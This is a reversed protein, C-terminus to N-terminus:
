LTVLIHEYQRFHGSLRIASLPKPVRVHHRQVLKNQLVAVAAGGAPLRGYSRQLVDSCSLAPYSSLTMCM